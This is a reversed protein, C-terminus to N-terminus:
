AEDNESSSSHTKEPSHAMGEASIHWLVMGQFVTDEQKEAQTMGHPGRLAM